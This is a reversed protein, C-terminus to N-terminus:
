WANALKQFANPQTQPTDTVNTIAVSHRYFYMGLMQWNETPNSTHGHCQCPRAIGVLGILDSETLVKDFEEMGVM